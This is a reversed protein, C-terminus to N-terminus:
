KMDSRKPKTVVRVLAAVDDGFRSRVDELSYETDEVVDHLFAAIIVNSDLGLEVGAIRAVAIPHIIYPEGTKRRQGGHAKRAFEYAQRVRELEEASLRSSLADLVEEAQTQVM